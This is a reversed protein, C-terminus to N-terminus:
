VRRKDDQDWYRRHMSLKKKLWVPIKKEYTGLRYGLYKLCTRTFVSPLLYGKGNNILYQFESLVFKIGEGEAQGFKERIWSERSHFVGIDFYRKFEQIFNYDHSHYVKADACYAIKWGALLMKAAIFTDESLITHRPFGGVAMLAERRYAAFSNSIFATKIGLRPVDDLSKITNHDQYNFLRAHSGIPGSDKYPLQRGYAIGIQSDNFVKVINALAYQDALIADQTMFIVIDVDCFEAGLQRTGGHNFEKKNIHIIEWGLDDALSVSNDSTGSDIILKNKISCTQKNVSVLLEKLKEGGNLTPIIISIKM